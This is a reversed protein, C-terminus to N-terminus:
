FIVSTNLVLKDVALSTDFRSSAPVTLLQSLVSHINGDASKSLSYIHHIFTFGLQMLSLWGLLQYNSRSIVDSSSRRIQIQLPVCDSKNLNIVLINAVAFLDCTM